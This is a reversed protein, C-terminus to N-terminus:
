DARVSPPSSVKQMFCSRALQSIAEIVSTDSIVKSRHEFFEEWCNSRQINVFFYVNM